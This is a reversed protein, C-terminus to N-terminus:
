RLLLSLRFLLDTQLGDISTMSNSAILLVTAKILFDLVSQFNRCHYELIRLQSIVFVFDIVKEVSKLIFSTLPVINAIFYITM